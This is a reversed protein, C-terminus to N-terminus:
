GKVAQPIAVLNEINIALPVAYKPAIMPVGLDLCRYIKRRAADPGRAYLIKPNNINSVLEIGGNVTNVANM